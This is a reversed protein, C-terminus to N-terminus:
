SNIIYLIKGKNDEMQYVGPKNPLSKAFFKIITQGNLNVNSTLKPFNDKIITPSDPKQPKLM